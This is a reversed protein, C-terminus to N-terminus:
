GESHAYEHALAQIITAELQPDPQQEPIDVISLWTQGDCGHVTLGIPVASENNARYILLVTMQCNCPATGHHPCVGGPHDACASKLDFTREVQLNSRALLQMIQAIAAEYDQYLVFM